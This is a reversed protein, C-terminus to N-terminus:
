VQGTRKRLLGIRMRYSDWLAGSMQLEVVFSGSRGDLIVEGKKLGEM